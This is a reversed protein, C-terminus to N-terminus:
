QTFLLVKAGTGAIASLKFDKWTVPAPFDIETDYGALGQGQALVDGTVPDVITFSSATSGGLLRITKVRIPRNLGAGGAMVTDLMIPRSDLVNAM